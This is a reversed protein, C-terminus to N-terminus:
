LKIITGNENLSFGLRNGNLIQSARADRSEYEKALLQLQRNRGGNYYRDEAALYMVYWRRIHKTTKRFADKLIKSKSIRM